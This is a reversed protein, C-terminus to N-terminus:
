FKITNREMFIAFSLRYTIGNVSEYVSVGVLLFEVEKHSFIIVVFVISVSVDCQLGVDDQGPRNWKRDTVDPWSLKGRM